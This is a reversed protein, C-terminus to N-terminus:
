YVCRLSFDGGLVLASHSLHGQYNCRIVLLLLFFFFIGFIDCVFIGNRQLFRFRIKKRVACIIFALAFSVFVFLFYITALTTSVHFVHYFLCIFFFFSYNFSVLCQFLKHMIHMYHKHNLTTYRFTILSHLKYAQAHMLLTIHSSEMYQIQTHTHGM